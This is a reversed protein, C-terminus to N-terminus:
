KLGGKLKDMFEKYKGSSKIEDYVFEPVGIEWGDIEGKKYRKITPEGYEPDVGAINVIADTVVSQIKRKDDLGTVVIRYMGGKKIWVDTFQVAEQLMNLIKSAKSM